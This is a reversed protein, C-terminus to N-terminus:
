DREPFNYNCLIMIDDVYNYSDFVDWYASAQPEYYKTTKGLGNWGLNMLLYDSVSRGTNVVDTMGDYIGLEEAEEESLYLDGSEYDFDPDSPDVTEWIYELYYNVITKGYGDVLWAHGTEEIPDYARIYIPFGDMLESVVVQFDYSMLTSSIGISSLYSRAHIINSSGWRVNYIMHVGEGVVLMVDQVRQTGSNEVTSYLSVGGWYPPNMVYQDKTLSPSFSPGSYTGDMSVDMYIGMSLNKQTFLYYLLQSVAVAVCGTPPQNYGSYYIPSIPFKTNYPYRQGWSTQTLNSVILSDSTELYGGNDMRHYLVESM